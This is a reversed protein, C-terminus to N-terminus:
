AAGAAPRRPAAGAAVDQNEVLGCRADIRDRAVLEPARQDIEGALVADGDEQRGMEHVLRLAAIADRQHMAPLTSATPAGCSSTLSRPLLDSSSAKM